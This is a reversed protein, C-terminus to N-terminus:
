IKDLTTMIMNYKKTQNEPIFIKKLCVQVVKRIFNQILQKDKFEKVINQYVNNSEIMTNSNPTNSYSIKSTIPFTTVVIYTCSQISIYQCSSTSANLSITNYSPFVSQLFKVFSLIRSVTSTNWNQTSYPTVNAPYFKIKRPNIYFFIDSHFYSLFLKIQM